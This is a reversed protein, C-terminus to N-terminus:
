TYLGRKRIYEAVAPPLHRTSEGTLLSERIQTSSVEYVPADLLIVRKGFLREYLDNQKQMLQETERDDERRICYLDALSFIRAPDYWRDLTLMMDTGCLFALRVGEQSLLSLTDATYSKGERETEVTSIEVNPLHGFALRCMELRDEPTVGDKLEKHPPIAAPVILLRSPQVTDSFHEAARVHGLHPPSFTGGFIALTKCM